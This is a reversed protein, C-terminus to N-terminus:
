SLCTSSQGTETIERGEEKEGERERRGPSLISGLVEHIGSL